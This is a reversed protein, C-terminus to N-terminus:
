SYNFVLIKSWNHFDYDLKYLFFAGFEIKEPKVSTWDLKVRNLDNEFKELVGLYFGEYTYKPDRLFQNKENSYRSLYSCTSILESNEFQKGIRHAFWQLNEFANQSESAHQM